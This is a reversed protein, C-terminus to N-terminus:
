LTGGGGGGRLTKQNPYDVLFEFPPHRKNINDLRASVKCLPLFDFILLYGFNSTELELFYIPAVILKGSPKSSVGKRLFRPKREM